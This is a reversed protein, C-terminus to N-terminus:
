DFIEGMSFCGFTEALLIQRESNQRQFAGGGQVAVGTQEPSGLAWGSHPAEGACGVAQAGPATGRGVRRGPRQGRGRNSRQPYTDITLNTRYITVEEKETKKIYLM